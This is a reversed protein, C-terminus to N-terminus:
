KTVIYRARSMIEKHIARIDSEEVDFDELTEQLLSVMEEFSIRDIGLRAHARELEENSYSAPGGMLSAFFKTQHDMLRRMDVNEFFPELNPSDLIKDYLASIMRSVQTFGGYRQFMTAAM